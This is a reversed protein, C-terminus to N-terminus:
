RRLEDECDDDLEIDVVLPPAVVAMAEVGLWCGAASTVGDADSTFLRVSTVVILALALMDRDEVYEDSADAVAAAVM